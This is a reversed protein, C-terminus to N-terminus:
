VYVEAVGEARLDTRHQWVYTMGDRGTSALLGEHLVSMDIGAPTKTHHDYKEILADKVTFDWMCVTRDISCSMVMNQRHPSFKVKMVDYGHGALVAISTKSSRVDWVRVMNDM